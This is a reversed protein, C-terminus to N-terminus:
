SIVVALILFGLGAIILAIGSYRLGRSEIYARAPKAPDYVVMVPKGITPPTFLRGQPAMTRM